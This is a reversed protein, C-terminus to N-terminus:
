YNVSSLFTIHITTKRRSNEDPAPWWINVTSLCYWLSPAYRLKPYYLCKKNPVIQQRTKNPVSPSPALFSFTQSSYPRTKNNNNSCYRVVSKTGFLFLLSIVIKKFFFARGLKWQSPMYIFFRQFLKLFSPIFIWLDYIVPFTPVM